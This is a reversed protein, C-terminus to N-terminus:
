EITLTGVVDVPQEPNDTIRIWVTYVGVGLSKGGSPGVLCQALYVPGPATDWSGTVWDLTGPKASGTMFAMAVVDNTPNYLSGGITASVPVQVNLTALSSISLNFM